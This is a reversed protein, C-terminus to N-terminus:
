EAPVGSRASAVVHDGVPWRHLFEQRVRKGAALAANTEFQEGTYGDCSVYGISKFLKAFSRLDIVDPADGIEAVHQLEHGLITVLNTRSLMCDVEVRLYRADGSAEAWITRGNLINTSFQQCTVYVIVNSAAIRRVISQLTPSKKGVELLIAQIYPSTTRIRQLSDTQSSTGLMLLVLLTAM